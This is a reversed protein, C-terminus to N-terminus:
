AGEVALKVRMIGSSQVELKMLSGWEGRCVETGEELVAGCPLYVYIGHRPCNMLEEKINIELFEGKLSSEFLGKGAFINCDSFVARAEGPLKCAYIVEASHPMMDKMEMSKLCGLAKHEWCDYVLKEADFELRM